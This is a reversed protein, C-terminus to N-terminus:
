IPITTLGNSCRRDVLGIVRWVKGILLILCNRSVGPPTTYGVSTLGTDFRRSEGKETIPSLTRASKTNWSPTINAKNSLPKSTSM